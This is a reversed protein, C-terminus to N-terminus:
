MTMWLQVLKVAIFIGTVLAAVVGILFQIRFARITNKSAPKM